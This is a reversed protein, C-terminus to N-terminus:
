KQVNGHEESIDCQEIKNRQYQRHHEVCEDRDHEEESGWPCEIISSDPVLSSKLNSNTSLTM